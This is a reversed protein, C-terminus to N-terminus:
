KRYQIRFKKPTINKYSKFVSAFYNSDNFGSKTAVETIPLDTDLLLKEAEMIKRITIYENVGVGTVKKFLKTFHSPSMYFRLALTNLSLNNNINSTIYLAAEEMLQFSPSITKKVDKNRLRSILILLQEFYLKVMSRSDSFGNRNSIEVEIHHITDKIHVLADVPFQIYMRKSLSKLYPIFDPDLFNDDFSFLIREVGTSQDSDTKHFYGKPVFIMDGENLIFIENEIFYKTKGKVLFYLEHKNHFHADSMRYPASRKTHDYFDIREDAYIAM